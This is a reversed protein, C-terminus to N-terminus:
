RLYKRCVRYSAIPLNANSFAIESTEVGAETKINSSLLLILDYGELCNNDNYLQGSM